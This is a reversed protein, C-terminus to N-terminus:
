SPWYCLGLDINTNFSLNYVEIYTMLIYLVRIYKYYLIHSIMQFSQHSIHTGM